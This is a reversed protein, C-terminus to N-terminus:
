EGLGILDNWFPCNDGLSPDRKKAAAEWSICWFHKLDDAKAKTSRRGLVFYEVKVDALIPQVEPWIPQDKLDFYKAVDERYFSVTSSHQLLDSVVILTKNAPKSLFQQVTIAQITELIPSTPSGNAQSLEKELVNSLPVLFGENWAKKIREPDGTLESVDDGNGPHCKSFVVNGASHAPNLVRIEVLSGKNNNSSIRGSLDVLLQSKTVDPLPDSVDILVEVVSTPVDSCAAAPRTYSEYLVVGTTSIVAVILLVGAFAYLFNSGSRSRRRHRVM